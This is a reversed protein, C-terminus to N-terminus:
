AAQALTDEGDAGAKATRTALLVELTPVLLQACSHKHIVTDVASPVSEVPMMASLMVIPIDEDHQRMFSVLDDVAIDPLRRNVVIADIERAAFQKIAEFGSAVPIVRFGGDALERLEEFGLNWEHSICLVNAM